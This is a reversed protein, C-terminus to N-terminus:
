LIARDNFPLFRSFVTGVNTGFVTLNNHAQQANTIRLSGEKTAIMSDLSMVQNSLRQFTRPAVTIRTRTCSVVLGTWDGVRM